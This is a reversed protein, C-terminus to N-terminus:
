VFTNIGGSRSLPHLTVVPEDSVIEAGDESLMDHKAPQNQSGNEWSPRSDAAVNTQGLSIGSEALSHRLHPMATELAARVQHDAAAFHLQVQDNNMRLSIHLSGLDEPHLRLEAHHIGERTFCALQQSLNQQWEPTGVSATLVSTQAAPAGGTIPEHIQINMDGITPIHFADASNSEQHQIPMQETSKNAVAPDLFTALQESPQPLTEGTTTATEFPLSDPKLSFSSAPHAVPKGVKGVFASYVAAKNLKQPHSNDIHSNQLADGNQASLLEAQATLHDARTPLNETQEPLHEARAPLLETEPLGAGSDGKQTPTDVHGPSVTMNKLALIQGNGEIVASATIEQNEAVEPLSTSQGPLMYLLGDMVGPHGEESIDKGKEEDTPLLNLPGQAPLHLKTNFDPLLKSDLEVAFSPADTDNDNQTASCGHGLNGTNMPLSIVQM